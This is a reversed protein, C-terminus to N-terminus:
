PLFQLTAVLKQVEAQTAGSEESILLQGMDTNVVVITWSPASAFIELPRFPADPKTSAVLVCKEHCLSSVTTVTEQRVRVTVAVAPRGAVTTSQKSVVALHPSSTLWSVFDSPLATENGDADYAGTPLYFQVGQGEEKPDGIELQRALSTETALWLGQPTSPAVTVAFRVGFAATAYTTGPHLSGDHMLTMGSPAPAISPTTSPSATVAATASAAVRTSPSGGSSCATLLILVLGAIGTRM